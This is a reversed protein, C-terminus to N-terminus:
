NCVVHKYTLQTGGPKGDADVFSVAWYGRTDGCTRKVADMDVPVATVNYRYEAAEGTLEDHMDSASEGSHTIGRVLAKGDPDSWAGFRTGDFSRGYPHQLKVRECLTHDASAVRNCDDPTATAGASPAFLVGLGTLVGAFALAAFKKLM